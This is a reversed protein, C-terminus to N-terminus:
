PRARLSSMKELGHLEAAVLVCIQTYASDLNWEKEHWLRQRFDSQMQRIFEERKEEPLTPWVGASFIALLDVLVRLRPYQKDRLCDQALVELLPVINSPFTIAPPNM